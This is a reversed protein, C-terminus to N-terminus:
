GEHNLTDTIPDYYRTNHEKDLAIQMAKQRNFKSQKARNRRHTYCGFNLYLFNDFFWYIRALLRM